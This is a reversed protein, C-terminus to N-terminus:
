KVAVILPQFFRDKLTQVKKFGADLFLRELSLIEVCYYRGGHVIQAAAQEGGKDEINYTTIEYQDGAFDWVDVMVLQGGDIPHITRPFIKKGDQHEM